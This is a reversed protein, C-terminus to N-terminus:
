ALHCRAIIETRTQMDWESLPDVTPFQSLNESYRYPRDFQFHFTAEAERVAALVAAQKYEESAGHPIVLPLSYDVGDDNGYQYPVNGGAPESSFRLLFRALRRRLRTLPSPISADTM